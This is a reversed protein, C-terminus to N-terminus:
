DLGCAKDQVPEYANALEILMRAVADPDAFPRDSSNLVAAIRTRQLDYM